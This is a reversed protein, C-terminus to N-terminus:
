FLRMQENDEKKYANIIDDMKYLIGYKGCEDTFVKSLKKFNPVVCEYRNNYYNIYKEKIGVFYKDLKDYYYNRQNERLTMGMYTHIFKAGNMKALKVLLKIDEEKDTIFPLMPNLM